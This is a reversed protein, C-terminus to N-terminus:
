KVNTEDKNELQQELEMVRQSLQKILADRVIVDNSLTNVREVYASLIFNTDVEYNSM